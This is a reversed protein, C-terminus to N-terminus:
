LNANGLVNRRPHRPRQLKHKCLRPRCRLKLSPVTLSHKPLSDKYSFSPPSFKGQFARRLDAENSADGSVISVNPLNLLERATDSNPNRTLVRVAYKPDKSLAPLNNPPPIMLRPPFKGEVIVAGQAGAGGVVLVTQPAM